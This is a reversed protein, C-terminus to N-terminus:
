FPLGENLAELATQALWAANKPLCAEDVRFQDSHHAHRSDASDSGIGFRMYCIPAVARYDAFDDSLACPIDELAGESSVIKAARRAIEVLKADNWTVKCAETLELTWTCGYCACTADIIRRFYEHVRNYTEPHFARLTGKLVATGAIINGATGAHFSGVTVVTPDMPSTLRSPITQLAQVLASGCVIADTCKEPMAGHGGRGHLTLTFMDCSAAVGGASVHMSGSELPSWVHVAFFANVDNVLGTKLVEQAGLEGEEAPQFILKVTGHLDCDKLIKAACLQVAIHADHGCAHMVGPNESAYPLSTNEAVRLADTDARLGIVPSGHGLTAITINNAPTVFPIGMANLIKRIRTHTRKEFHSPEPDRHFARFTDILFTREEEARRLIDM